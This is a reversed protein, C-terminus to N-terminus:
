KGDETIREFEERLISVAEEESSGITIALRAYTTAHERLQQRRERKAPLEPKGGVFTGEGRRVSLVGEDALRQYAKQVTGPNVRLDRSMERVSPVASGMPLRGISVLRRIELEIQQWIPTSDQPNIDIM